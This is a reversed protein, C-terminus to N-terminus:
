LQRAHHECLVKRNAVLVLNLRALQALLRCHQLCVVCAYLALQLLHLDLRCGLDLFDALLRRRLAVVERGVVSEDRPLALVVKRHELHPAKATCATTAKTRM